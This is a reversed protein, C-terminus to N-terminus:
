GAPVLQHRALTGYLACRELLAEHTGEDVVRGGDMVVIRDANVVTSLRHAVVLVTRGRSFREIAQQIQAESDADIMSTAEDLILVAPDRLIARAIALRQRQGGSLTLGREGILADLGGDLRDVFGSARAAELARRIDDDSVGRTGYKVNDRVTGEFLVVEQTVVGIQRRLSRVGHRAIDHGDLLVRGEDPDFLRPVLSLLTTKGSGNPGVVAVREGFGVELSVGRLSPEAAGPYTFTIGEFVLRERHRPLKPLTRDLGPEKEEALLRGIREAAASSQQIDNSLGTLPKLSAGAVGLSGLVVFFATRDLEGDLIAKIAVLSLAGLVFISLVEVLPSAAARATRVRLLERLVRDNIRAFRAAEGRETTHVKVVRLGHLAQTATGYLAAQSKLAQRSARRIRKGLRRIVTYLVPGVTLCALTLKWDYVFAVVLGALGKTVQALAKSLLATLGTSLQNPDNVVRSVADATGQAVVSRLPLRILTGFVERRVRAVTRQVVTQAFYQHLFNCLGGFVTLLGLVVIILVVSRFPDEPLASVWGGPVVGALGGGAANDEVLSRLGQTSDDDGGLVVHLVPGISVLGVGLGAASLVSCAVAAAFYGRHHLM